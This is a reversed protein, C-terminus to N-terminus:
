KRGREFTIYRDSKEESYNEMHLVGQMGALEPVIYRLRIMKEDIDDMTGLAARAEGFYLSVSGDKSFYICDTNIEYKTLLQTITLVQEFIKPDRVPLAENVVCHDFDLGTVYPIGPIRDLSSEVIIGDRDFYLYRDLYGIYGAVAKEYVRISVKHSSEISVDMREIFPINRVPKGGYRFKLYLSNNGYPGSMIFDRIEKNTYHTNGTVEVETVRYHAKVLFLLALMVAAACLLGCLFLLRKANMKRRHREIERDADYFGEEPDLSFDPRERRGPLSFTNQNLYETGVEMM